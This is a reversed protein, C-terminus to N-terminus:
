SRVRLSMYSRTKATLVGDARAARPAEKFEQTKGSEIDARNVRDINIQTWWGNGMRDAAIGYSGGPGNDTLTPSKFEKFEHTNPDYRIAGTSTTAWVNGKTDV